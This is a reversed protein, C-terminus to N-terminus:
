TVVEKKVWDEKLMGYVVHDTYEDYLRAAQRIVGEQMFGLREPVGRSKKNESAARIEIRNMGLTEFAYDFLVRCSRTLLGKGKYDSGMWYGISTVRNKEDIEHFDIVGAINGKYLICVTLGNNEAYRRLSMKIYNRTDEVEKTFHIWPLWTRIHDRSRDSLEFLEEADRHDIMKLSLEEDIRHEFM